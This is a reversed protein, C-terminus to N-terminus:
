SFIAGVLGDPDSLRVVESVDSLLGIPEEFWDHENDDVVSIAKIPRRSERLMPLVDTFMSFVHTVARRQWGLHVRGHLAMLASDKHSTHVFYDLRWANNTKGILKVNSEYHLDRVGLVHEIREETIRRSRPMAVSRSSRQYTLEPTGTVTTPVAEINRTDRKDDTVPEPLPGRADLSQSVATIAQALRIVASALDGNSVRALMAADLREVGYAHCAAAYIHEQVVASIDDDANMFLWGHTDGLDSVVQGWLTDRWYLDIQHGDPFVFPTRIQVRDGSVSCEFLDGLQSHLVRCIELKMNTDTNVM